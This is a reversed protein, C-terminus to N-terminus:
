EEQRPGEQQRLAKLFRAIEKQVYPRQMVILKGHRGEISTGLKESWEGPLVRERVMEVLEPDSLGEQRASEGRPVERAARMRAPWPHPDEEWVVLDRVDYIRLQMYGIIGEPTSIFIAGDMILFDMGVLKLIRRLAVRFRANSMKLTVTPDGHDLVVRPDVIVTTRTMAQLSGAVESLPEGHFEFSVRGDLAREIAKEWEPLECGAAHRMRSRIQAPTIGTRDACGELAMGLLAMLALAMKDRGLTATVAGSEELTPEGAQPQPVPM